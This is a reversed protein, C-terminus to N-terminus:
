PWEPWDKELVHTMTAVCEAIILQEIKGYKTKDAGGYIDTRFVLEPSYDFGRPNVWLEIGDQLLYWQGDKQISFKLSMFLDKDDKKRRYRGFIEYHDPYKWITVNLDPGGDLRYANHIKGLFSATAELDSGFFIFDGQIDGNAGIRWSNGNPVMVYTHWQSTQEIKMHVEPWADRVEEPPIRSMPKERLAKLARSSRLAEHTQGAQSEFDTTNSGQASFLPFVLALSTLFSTLTRKM